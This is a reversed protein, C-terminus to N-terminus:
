EIEEISFGDYVFRGIVTKQETETMYEYMNIMNGLGDTIHVDIYSSSCNGSGCDAYECLVTYPGEPAKDNWFIIERGLNFGDSDDRTLFAGSESAPNLLSVTDGSPEVLLLDMDAGSLQWTLGVQLGSTIDPNRDFTSNQFFLNTSKHLEFQDQFNDTNALLWHEQINYGLNNLSPTYSVQISELDLIESHVNAANQFLIDYIDQQDVPNINFLMYSLGTVYYMSEASNQEAQGSTINSLGIKSLFTDPDADGTHALWSGIPSDYFSKMDNIFNTIGEELTNSATRSNTNSKNENLLKEFRPLPVDFATNKGKGAAIRGGQFNPNDLAFTVNSYFDEEELNIITEFLITALKSISHYHYIRLFFQDDNISEFEIVGGTQYDENPYKFYIFAPNLNDDVLLITEINFGPSFGYIKNFEFDFGTTSPPGFFSLQWYNYSDIITSKLANEESIDDNYFYLLPIFEEDYYDDGDYDDGFYEELFEDDDVSIILSEEDCNSFTLLSFILALPLIYKKIM